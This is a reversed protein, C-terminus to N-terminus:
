RPIERQYIIRDNGRYIGFTLTATPNNTFDEDNNWDYQLWPPVQYEFQLSGQRSEGPASFLLSQYVGKVFSKNEVSADTNSPLLSDGADLDVLRYDWLNLGGDGVEGTSIKTAVKPVQCNEVENDIFKDDIFHQTRMTVPLNSTEPGYSNDLQWRGFRIEVGQTLVKETSDPETSLNIADADEVRTVLFPIKAPFPAIKSHKTHEYVFDDLANFTYSVVGKTTTVVPEEGRTMVSSLMVKEGTVIPELRLTEDDAVPKTIDIGAKLLKMFGSETYNQTIGDKLNYATIHIIPALLEKYSIAGVSLGSLERTQGAYTWDNTIPDCSSYHYANLTGHSEVTQTFYAPTFRGVNTIKGLIDGAGFYDNSALTSNLEIIGVEDFSYQNDLSSTSANFSNSEIINLVPNNGPNPLLLDNNITIGGGEFNEAKLTNQNFVVFDDPIGDPVSGAGTEDQGNIWQMATATLTFSEGAKKFPTGGTDIVGGSSEALAKSGNSDNSFDLKIGFPREVFANSSASFDKIIKSGDSDEVEVDKQANIIFKGAHPYNLTFIATSDTSFNLDQATATETLNYSNGNNSLSLLDKCDGGDCSYSLNVGVDTDNPFTNICAGTTTNTEVARLSLTTANFGENSSKGSIQMPIDSFIFGSDKFDVICPTSSTEKCEYTQDLSLEADGITTYSYSTSTGNDGSVTVTKYPVNNISLQVDVADPNVTNCSADACAKIIIQDAECTIGQGDLTDIEFHDIVPKSDNCEYYIKATNKLKLEIGGSAAGTLEAEGELSVKFQSYVLGKIKSIKKIHVEKYGYIILQEVAGGINVKINGEPSNKDGFDSHDKLFLRVQGGGVINITTNAFLQLKGIYYDGAVLNITSTGTSNKDGDTLKEILYQDFNSSFNLTGGNKMNITGFNNEGSDGITMTTSVNLTSNESSALFAGLDLTNTPIGTASCNAFGNCTLSNGGQLTKTTLVGTPDNYITPSNESKIKGNSAHTTAGNVFVNACYGTEPPTNEYVVINSYLSNGTPNSDDDNVFFLYQFNGTYFQGVPITFHTVGSGSYMDFDSIGWNQTGHVKFTKDQSISLNDDFGLGHIEGQTTSKFDFEIVTDTTVTYSLDIKQWRNGELYLSLGADRIEVTGTKDQSSGGYSSVDYEQIINNTSVQLKSSVVTYEVVLLPASGSEGDYSEATRQCSSSTCGTGPEVILVLNNNAAWGTRDVIEQIITSIDPTQHLENTSNWASPTWNISALTKTRKSIDRKGNKFEKPSDADEGAIILTTTGSDREDTEFEIYASNITAGKPIDVSKFRMGIIQLGGAFSDYSFELDTSNRYMKGDSILEEAADNSSNIRVQETVGFAAPSFISLAWLLFVIFYHLSKNQVNM